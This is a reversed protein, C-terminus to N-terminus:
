LQPVRAIGRRGTALSDEIHRNFFYERGMQLPTGYVQLNRVYFWGAVALVLVGVVCLQTFAARWRGRHLGWLAIVLGATAVYMLSTAKTLMGLGLVTGLAAAWLLRETQVTRLLLYLAVSCLVTNLSENGLMPATYIHVPLFLIFAPAMFQALPRDRFYRRAIAYSVLASVLGLVSFTVSIVKLVQKPEVHKAAAVLHRCM